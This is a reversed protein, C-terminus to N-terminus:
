LKIYKLLILAADREHQNTKGKYATLKIFEDHTIKGDIGKWIYLGNVKKRLPKIETHPLNNFKCWEIWLQADRKNMGVNQSKRDNIQIHTNRRFTIKNKNPNEIYIHFDIQNVKLDDYIYAEMKYVIHWFSGSCLKLQGDYIACGTTAGADIAIYVKSKNM